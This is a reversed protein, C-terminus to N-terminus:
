YELKMTERVFRYYHDSLRDKTDVVNDNASRIIPNYENIDKFVSGDDPVLIVEHTSSPLIIIDHGMKDAFDSLVGPFTMCVAGLFREKNTLIYMNSRFPRKPFGPIESLINQMPFIQPEMMKPANEIAQRLLEEETVNWMQLFNNRVQLSQLGSNDVKQTLYICVLALDYYRIHPSDDILEKNDKYNMLKLCLHDKVNEYHTFAEATIGTLNSANDMAELVDSVVRSVDGTSKYYEYCNKAPIVPYITTKTRDKPTFVILDGAHNAKEPHRELTPIVDPSLASIFEQILAEIFLNYNM